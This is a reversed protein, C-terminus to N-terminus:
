NMAVKRNNFVKGAITRTYIYSVIPLPGRLYKPVAMMLKKTNLIRLLNIIDMGKNYIMINM